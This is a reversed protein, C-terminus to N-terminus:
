LEDAADSTYLLCSYLRSLDLRYSNKGYRLNSVVALSEDAGYYLSAYCNMSEFGIKEHNRWFPHFTNGPKAFRELLEVDINVPDIDENTYYESNFLLAYALATDLGDYNHLQKPWYITRWGWALGSYGISFMAESPYYGRRYRM